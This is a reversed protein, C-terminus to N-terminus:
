EYRLAEMPDIRAARRAPLYCALVAVAFLLLPVLVFTKLDYASVNFLMSSMCKSVALAIILGLGLGILILIFAKKIVLILIDRAEAGFAMRIGIENRRENIAFTMIGYLGFLAMFLAVCAMISLLIMCFREVSVSNQVLQDMTSVSLIPQDPDIEWLARRAPGAWQLTNGHTRLFLTMSHHAIQMMPVYVFPSFDDSRLSSLKVNGVVGV